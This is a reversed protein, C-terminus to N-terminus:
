YPRHGKGLAIEDNRMMLCRDRGGLDRRVDVSLGAARFVAGAAAAQMWGIEVCAVGGPAIQPPLLPAIRRYDDLGDAGAFLASAPEHAEVEVPLVAGMEVYPPNCLVLDFAEGTGAWDGARIEARSARGLREANRSAWRLAEPSADIGVGTAGPWLDLAALLLAGSGTGLDLIRRPPARGAFHETAAEILTESDPRPVLVGPGVALSITWFDRSGILYAIPEHAMRREVLAAFGAPEAAREIGDLLM